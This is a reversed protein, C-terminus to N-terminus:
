SLPDRPVLRPSTRLTVGGFHRLDLTAIARALTREAVAMVAADVLGLGLDHHRVHLAYARELDAETGWEVHFAGSALDALFADQAPRGIESAALYDVEPLIAWPLVWADPDREFIQRLAAHHKDGADLLALVAGTDAVIV